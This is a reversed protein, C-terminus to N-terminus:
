GWLCETKSRMSGTKHSLELVSGRTEKLVEVGMDCDGSPASFHMTNIEPIIQISGPFPKSFARCSQHTDPLFWLLHASCLWGGRAREGSHEAEGEETERPDVDPTRKVGTTNGADDPPKIHHSNRGSPHVSFNM